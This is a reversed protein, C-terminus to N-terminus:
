IIETNCLHHFGMPYIVAEAGKFLQNQYKLFEVTIGKVRLIFYLNMLVAQLIQGKNEVAEPGTSTLIAKKHQYSLLVRRPLSYM